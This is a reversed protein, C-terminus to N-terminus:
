DRTIPTIHYIKMGAEGFSDIEFICVEFKLYIISAKASFLIMVYLDMFARGLLQLYISLDEILANRLRKVM